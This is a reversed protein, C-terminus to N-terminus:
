SLKVAAKQALQQLTAIDPTGLDIYLLLCVTDNKRIAITDVGATIDLGSAKTSLNIQWASSQDGMAPFAMQGVTGSFTYGGSTFSIQGCSNFVQTVLAMAHQGNGPVYALYEELAPVGNSGDQYSAEAKESAHLDTKVSTFCKPTSSSSSSSNDVSWGAPLDSLGILETKLDPKPTTTAPPTTGPLATTAATHDAATPNRTGGCSAAVVVVALLGVALFRTRAM